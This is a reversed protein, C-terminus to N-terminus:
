FLPKSDNAAESLLHWFHLSVPLAINDVVDDPIQLSKTLM